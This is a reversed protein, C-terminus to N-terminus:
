HASQRFPWNSLFSVMLTHNNEFVRGDRHQVTQEMYGVELKCHEGIGHGLAVYARNQDFHNKAVQRGANLFIEDYAKFYYGDDGCLKFPITTMLRYRLRNEYRFSGIRPSGGVPFEAQGIHRQELRFRHNWNLGLFPTTTSIQEWVRHEPTETPVPYDGYRFTRMYGYGMGAKWRENIDYNLGPQVLIQMPDAGMQDRRIQTDFHLGWPGDGIGHDGFYNFWATANHDQEAAKASNLTAAFMTLISIINRISKMMPFHCLM